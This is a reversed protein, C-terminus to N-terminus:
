SALAFGLGFAAVAAGLMGVAIGAALAYRRAAPTAAPPRAAPTTATTSAPPAAPSAPAPEASAEARGGAPTKTSAPPAAPAAPALVDNVLGVAVTSFTTFGGLFGTGIVVAAAGEGAGALTLGLLFSGLVNIVALSALAPVRRKLWTDLGWRAVAGVGGALAMLLVIGVGYDM